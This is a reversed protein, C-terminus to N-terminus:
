RTASLGNNAGSVTVRRVKALAVNNIYAAATIERSPVTGARRADASDSPPPFAVFRYRMEGDVPEGDNEAVLEANWWGQTSPVGVAEIIAGGQTKRIALQTVQAIAPRDDRVAAEYGGDPALTQPQQQQAGGFWNLPNVRSDRVSGCASLAIMLSLSALLPKKM